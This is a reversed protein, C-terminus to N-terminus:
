NQKEFIKAVEVRDKKIRDWDLEMQMMGYIIQYIGALETSWEASALAVPTTGNMDAITQDAGADILMQVAAPHAFFTANILATSQDNKQANLDAGNEILAEVIQDNGFMSAVILPTAGEPGKENLDSGAQIHSQIADLNNEMAAKHLNFTPQTVTSDSVSNESKSCANMFPITLLVVLIQIKKINM